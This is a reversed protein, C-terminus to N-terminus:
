GVNDEEVQHGLPERELGGQDQFEHLGPYQRLPFPVSLPVLFKNHPIELVIIRPLHLM